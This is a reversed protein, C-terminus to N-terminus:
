SWFIELEVPWVSTPIDNGIKGTSSAIGEFKNRKSIHLQFKPYPYILQDLIRCNLSWLQRCTFYWLTRQAVCESNVYLYTCNFIAGSPLRRIDWTTGFLKGLPAIGEFHNGKSITLSPNFKPSPVAVDPWPNRYDSNDSCTFYLLTSIGFETPNNAIGDTALNFGQLHTLM